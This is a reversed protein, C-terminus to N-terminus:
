FKEKTGCEHREHLVQTESTDSTYREHQMRTARTQYEHQLNFSHNFM